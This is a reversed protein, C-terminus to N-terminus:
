EARRTSFDFSTSMTEAIEVPVDDPDPPPAVAAAAAADIKGIACTVYSLKKELDNLRAYEESFSVGEQDQDTINSAAMIQTTLQKRQAVLEERTYDLILAACVSSSCLCSM